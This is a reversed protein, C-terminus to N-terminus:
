ASAADADEVDSGRRMGVLSRVSRRPRPLLFVLVAPVAGCAASVVLRPVTSLDSTASSVAFAVAGSVLAGPLGSASVLLMPLAPQELVRTAMIVIGVFYAVLVLVVGAAVTEIGWQSGIVAAGVIGIAYLSVAVTLSRQRGLGRLISTFPKTAVRFFMGVALIQFTTAADHWQAGLLVEVAMGGLVVSLASVPFLVLSLLMTALHTGRSISDRDDRSRLIVPFLVTDIADGFMNAPLAMLKYARSYFGLADSGLTASIVLNDGQTSVATVAFLAAFSRAGRVIERTHSAHRGPLAVSGIM